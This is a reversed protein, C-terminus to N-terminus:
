AAEKTRQMVDPTKAAQECDDIFQLISALNFLRVGRVQGPERISVSRIKRNAHLEYLKARTFGTYHEPGTVPARVWVPLFGDRERVLELVRPSLARPKVIKEGSRQGATEDIINVAM